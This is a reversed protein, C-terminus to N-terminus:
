GARVYTSSIERQTREIRALRLIARYELDCFDKPWKKLSGTKSVKIIEDKFKFVTEEYPLKGEAIAVRIHLIVAGCGIIFEAKEVLLASSILMDAYGKVQGDTLAAGKNPDYEFIYKAM